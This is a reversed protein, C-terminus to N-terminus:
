ARKERRKRLWYLVVGVLAAVMAVTDFGSKLMTAQSAAAIEAAEVDAVVARLMAAVRANELYDFGAGILATVALGYRMVAGKHAFLQVIALFLAAGMLGPYFLDLVHQTDLYFARGADSIAGLFAVAQETDYGTPRMDFPMLGGAEAVIYPMSWLAMVLYIALALGLLGWTLRGMM